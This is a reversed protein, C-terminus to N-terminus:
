SESDRPKLTSFSLPNAGFPARPAIQLAATASAFGTEGDSFLYKNIMRKVLIGNLESMGLQLQINASCTRPIRHINCNHCVVASLIDM